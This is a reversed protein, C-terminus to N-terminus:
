VQMTKNIKPELLKYQTLLTRNLLDLSNNQLIALHTFWIWLLLNVILLVNEM